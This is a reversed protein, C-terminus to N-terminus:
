YQCSIKFCKMVCSLIDSSRFETIFPHNYLLPRLVVVWCYKHIFLVSKIWQNQLGLTWNKHWKVALRKILQYLWQNSRNETSIEWINKNPLFVNKSMDYKYINASATLRYFQNELYAEYRILTNTREPMFILITLLCSFNLTVRRSGGPINNQLSKM